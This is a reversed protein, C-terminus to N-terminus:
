RSTTQSYFHSGFTERICCFLNRSHNLKMEREHLLLDPFRHDWRIFHTYFLLFPSYRKQVLVEKRIAVLSIPNWKLPIIRLQLWCILDWMFFTIRLVALDKGYLGCLKRKDKNWNATLSGGAASVNKFINSLLWYTVHYFYHSTGLSDVKIYGKSELLFRM